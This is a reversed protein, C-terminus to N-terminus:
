HAHGHGDDVPKASPVYTKPLYPFKVDEVWWDYKRGKVTAKLIALAYQQSEPFDKSGPGHVDYLALAYFPIEAGRGEDDGMAEIRVFEIHENKSAQLRKRLALIPGYRQDVTMKDKPSPSELKKLMEEVHKPDSRASPHLNYSIIEAITSAELVHAIQKGFQEAQRARVYTQVTTYTGTVLGFILGLTIGVNALGTGTLMDPYQRISRHALFGLVVALAAAVYFFPHAFTCIALAGCVLSFIAQRSIARYTPIENEIVSGATRPEIEVTGSKQDTAV